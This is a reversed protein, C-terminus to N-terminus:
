PHDHFHVRLFRRMNIQAFHVRMRRDHKALGEPRIRRRGCTIRGSRLVASKLRASASM